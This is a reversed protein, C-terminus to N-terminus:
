GRLLAIAERVREAHQTEERGNQRLLKAVEPDSEADAWRQYGADGDLEGQVIAALLEPPIADPLPITYPASDAASPEWAGRLKLAIARRLREAHGREERANKRLLAAAEPSAVREAIREYFTEGARELRYMGRMEPVGLKELKGLAAAAGFFNEESM